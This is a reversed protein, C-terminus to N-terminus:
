RWCSGSCRKDDIRQIRAFRCVCVRELLAALAVQSAPCCNSVCFNNRSACKQFCLHDYGTGSPHSSNASAAAGTGSAAAGHTSGLRPRDHLVRPSAPVNAACAARLVETTVGRVDDDNPANSTAQGCVRGSDHSVMLCWVVIVIVSKLGNCAHRTLFFAGPAASESDDFVDMVAPPPLSLANAFFNLVTSDWRPTLADSQRRVFVEFEEDGQLRVGCLM